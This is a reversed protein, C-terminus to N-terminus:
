NAFASTITSVMQEHLLPDATASDAEQPAEGVVLVLVAAGAIALYAYLLVVTEYSVTRGFAAKDGSNVADSSNVSKGDKAGIVSAFMSKYKDNRLMSIAQKTNMVNGGDKVFQTSIDAFRAASANADLSPNLVSLIKKGSNALAQNVQSPAGSSVQKQFTDFFTPDSVKLAAIIKSETELIGAKDADTTTYSALDVSYPAISSAAVGQGFFIASFMEEGTFKAKAVAKVKATDSSKQCSTTTVTVFALPVCFYWKFFLKRISKM